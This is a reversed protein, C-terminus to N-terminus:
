CIVDRSVRMFENFLSIVVRLDLGAAPGAVASPLGGPGGGGPPGGPGGGPPGGPPAGGGGGGPGFGAGARGAFGTEKLPAIIPSNFDSKAFLPL